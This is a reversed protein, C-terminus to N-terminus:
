LAIRGEQSESPYGWLRPNELFGLFLGYAGQPGATRLSLGVTLPFVGPTQSTDWLWYPALFLLRTDVALPFQLRSCSARTRAGAQPRGM